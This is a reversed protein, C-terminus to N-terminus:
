KNNRNFTELAFLIDGTDIRGLSWHNVLERVQKMSYRPQNEERYEDREEKSYFVKWSDSFTVWGRAIIMRQEWSGKTCVGYLELEEQYIKHGDETTLLPAGEVSELKAHLDEWWREEGERTRFLIMEDNHIEISVIVWQEDAWNKLCATDGVTYVAGDSLRKVSHIFKNKTSLEYELTCPSAGEIGDWSFHGNSDKTKTEGRLNIFSLIEYDPEIVKEWFKPYNEVQKALIWKHPYKSYEVPAYSNELDGPEVLMGKEWDEPLGPYVELLKYEM